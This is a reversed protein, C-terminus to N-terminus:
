DGSADTGADDTTAPPPAAAGADEDLAMAAALSGGDSLACAGPDMTATCIAAAGGNCGPQCWVNSSNLNGSSDVSCCYNEPCFPIAPSQQQGTCVLGSSCENHSDLPNCRHGESVGTDSLGGICGAGALSLVAFLAGVLTCARSFMPIEKAFRSTKM